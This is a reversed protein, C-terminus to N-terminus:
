RGLGVVEERGRNREFFTVFEHDRIKIERGADGGPQLMRVGRDYFEPFMPVANESKVVKRREEIFPGAENLDREHAKEGAIAKGPNRKAVEDPLPDRNGPPRCKVINTIFLRDRTLGAERLLEDLLQGAPGVFPRGQVDEQQQTRELEAVRGVLTEADKLSAGPPALTPRTHM